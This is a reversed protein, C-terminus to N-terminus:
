QQQHEKHIKDWMELAELNNNLIDQRGDDNVQQGDKDLIVLTPLGNIGFRQKLSAIRATDTYAVALWPM